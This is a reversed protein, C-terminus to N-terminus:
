LTIIKKTLSLGVQPYKMLIHCGDIAKWYCLFQWFEEMDLTKNTFDAESESMHQSVTKNWLCDVQSVEQVITCM